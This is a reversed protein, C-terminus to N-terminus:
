IGGNGITAVGPHCRGEKFLCCCCYQSSHSLPGVHGPQVWTPTSFPPKSALSSVSSFQGLGHPHLPSCLSTIPLAPWTSVLDGGVGGGQTLHKKSSMWRLVVWCSRTMDLEKARSGLQSSMFIKVDAKMPVPSPHPLLNPIASFVIKAM